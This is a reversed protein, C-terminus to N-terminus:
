GDILLPQLLNYKRCLRTLASSTRARVDALEGLQVAGCFPSRLSFCTLTATCASRLGVTSCSRWRHGLATRFDVLAWFDDARCGSPLATGGSSRARGGGSVVSVERQGLHVRSGKSDAGASWREECVSATTSEVAYRKETSSCGRVGTGAESERM